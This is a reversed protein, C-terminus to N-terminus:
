LLSLSPFVSLSLSVQGVSICKALSAARTDRVSPYLVDTLQSPEHAAQTLSRTLGETLPETNVRRVLDFGRQRHSKKYYAPPERAVASSNGRSLPYGQSPGTEPSVTLLIQTEKHQIVLSFFLSGM